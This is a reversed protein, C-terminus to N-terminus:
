DFAIASRASKPGKNTFSGYVEEYREQDQTKEVIIRVSTVQKSEGLSNALAIVRADSARVDTTSPPIREFGRLPDMFLVHTAAPLPINAGVSDASLLIIRASGKELSNFRSTIKKWMSASGKGVVVSNEGGCRRILIESLVNLVPQSNSYVIVKIGEEGKIIDALYLVTEAFKTGYATSLRSHMDEIPDPRGFDLKPNVLERITDYHPMQLGELDMRIDCCPCILSDQHYLKELCDFCLQHHCSLIMQGKTPQNCASCASSNEDELLDAFATYICFSRLVDDDRRDSARSYELCRELNSLDGFPLIQNRSPFQNVIKEVDFIIRKREEDLFAAVGWARYHAKELPSLQVLVPKQIVSVEAGGGLSEATNRRFIHHKVAQSLVLQSVATACARDTQLDLFRM